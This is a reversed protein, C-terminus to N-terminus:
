IRDRRPVCLFPQGRARLAPIPQEEAVLLARGIEEVLLLEFAPDGVVEPRQRRIPLHQKDLLRSIFRQKENKMAHKENKM